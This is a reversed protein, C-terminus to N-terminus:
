PARGPARARLLAVDLAMRQPEPLQHQVEELAGEALDGLAAFSFNAESEAPRAALVRHGLDRAAGVGELWLATKGIGPEGELVLAAFGDDIGHLLEDIAALEADRGIV